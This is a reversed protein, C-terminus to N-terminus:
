ADADDVGNRSVLELTGAERLEGLIGALGAVYRDQRGWSPFPLSYLPISSLQALSMASRVFPEIGRMVCVVAKPSLERMRASLESVGAKRAVSRELRDLQNVPIRCLDDLYCGLDRFFELFAEGSAFQRDSTLAFADRTFQFLNSNASYFFTGGAPVSEGVFLVEVRSSRYSLRLAEFKSPEASGLESAAPSLPTRKQSGTIERHGPAARRRASHPIKWRGYPGPPDQYAHPIQRDRLLRRLPLGPRHRSDRLLGATDLVQAAETATIADLGTQDLHHDICAIIRDVNAM